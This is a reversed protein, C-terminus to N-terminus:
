KYLQKRIEVLVQKVKEEDPAKQLTSKECADDIELMLQEAYQLLEEYSREGRKIALLEERNSREVNLKDTEFLEKVQQLLRITHMMNKADYGKGHEQNGKYQNENRKEM